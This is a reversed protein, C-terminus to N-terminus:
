MSLKKLLSEALGREPFGSKDDIARTLWKKSEENRGVAHLVVAYHYYTVSPIKHTAATVREYVSLAQKQQGLRYYVWGLTDLFFPNPSSVFREAAVRAKELMAADTYLHDAVLQALNNAALDIDPNKSLVSSYVDIAERHKNEIMLVDALMLQARSDRRLVADDKRLLAAGEELRRAKILLKAAALYPEANKAGVAVAQRYLELAKDEQGTKLYCDGLLTMVTATKAELSELYKAAGTPDEDKFHVDLLTSLAHEALPANIDSSIVEKLAAIAEARKEQGLLVQARLFLATNKQGEIKGLTDIANGANEWDRKTILVRAVTEWAVPYVPDSKTVISLLSLARDHDGRLSYMQALRVRAPSNLPAVDLLQAMTDVALDLRGQVLLAESLLQLAEVAKPSDRLITRLLAISDQYNGQDFLIQARIFLADRNGQDRELVLMALKQAVEKNGQLFEIRALTTQANLGYKSRSEDKNGQVIQNLLSVARDVDKNSVYLDALWFLLEQHAPYASMFRRIEEEAAGFGKNEKLFVVLKKKIDWDDPMSKIGERLVREAGEKDGVQLFVKALDQRYRSEHPKLSFIAQYAEVIKGTEGLREYVMAKLLYLPLSNPVRQVAEEVIQGAAKLDGRSVEMGTLVTFATVNSPDFSLAQRAERETAQYDKQRLFLAAQLAHADANKPDSELLLNVRKQSEENMEAALYYQALKVLSPAYHKNQQEAATYNAFASKLDNEGEDVLGIKYRAEPAAPKIRAANKYEVRARKYDSQLYLNDGKAIYKQYKEEASNCGSLLWLVLFCHLCISLRTSM